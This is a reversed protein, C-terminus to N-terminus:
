ATAVKSRKVPLAEVNTGPALVMTPIDAAAPAYCSAEFNLIAGLEHLDRLTTLGVVFTSGNADAIRFGNRGRAGTIWASFKPQDADLKIKEVIEFPGAAAAVELAANRHARRTPAAPPRLCKLRRALPETDARASV